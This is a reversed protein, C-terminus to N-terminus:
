FIRRPPKLIVTSPPYLGYPPPKINRRKRRWDGVAGAGEPFSGSSHFGDKVSSTAIRHLGDKISSTRSRRTIPLNKAGSLIVTKPQRKKTGRLNRGVGNPDDELPAFSRSSPFAFHLTCFAFSIKLKWNEIKWKQVKESFNLVVPHFVCFNTGIERYIPKYISM